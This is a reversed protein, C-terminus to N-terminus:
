VPLSFGGLAVAAPGSASLLAPWGRSLPESIAPSRASTGKVRAGCTSATCPVMLSRGSWKSVQSTLSFRDRNQYSKVRSFETSQSEYNNNTQVKVAKFLLKGITNLRNPTRQWKM